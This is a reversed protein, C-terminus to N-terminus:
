HDGKEQVPDNLLVRRGGSSPSGQHRRLLRRQIAVIEEAAARSEEPRDREALRISLKNLLIALEPEYAAPEDNALRRQLAVAEGIVDLAEDSRGLDALRDSLSTLLPALWQEQTFPADNALRRQLAVAEGIV